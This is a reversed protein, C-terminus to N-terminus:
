RPVQSFIQLGVTARTAGVYWLDERSAFEGSNMDVLLVFPAQLGKFANITSYRFYADPHAKKLAGIGASREQRYPSLVAVNEPTAGRTKLAQWAQELQQAQEERSSWHHEIVASDGGPLAPSPASAFAFRHHLWQAIERSNRCNTSLHFPYPMMEGFIDTPLCFDRQYLDQAPDAFLCVQAGPQIVEYLPLWWFAEFDQAEDVILADYRIELKGVAALLQEPVTEEYFPRHDAPNDPLEWPLGAREILTQAFDHFTSVTLEGTLPRAKEQLHHRLSEALAKNFCLLLVQQGDAVLDLAKHQALLSKGTGAGGTITLQPVFKLLELAWLQQNTLQVLRQQVSDVRDELSPTLHFHPNLVRQTFRTADQPALPVTDQRPWRAFQKILAAADLAQLAEHDLIDERSLGLPLPAQGARVDPFVLNRGMPLRFAEGMLKKMQKGIAGLGKDTQKVPDTIQHRENFRDASYWTNNELSIGGGKVEWVLLGHRPHFLVFDSEGRFTGKKKEEAIPLSFYVELGPFDMAGLLHLVRLESRPLVGPDINELAPILKAV